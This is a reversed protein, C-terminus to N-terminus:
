AHLDMQENAKNALRAALVLGYLLLGLAALGLRYLLFGM